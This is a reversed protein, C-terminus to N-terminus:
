PTYSSADWFSGNVMFTCTITFGCDELLSVYNQLDNRWEKLVTNIMLRGRGSTGGNDMWAAANPESYNCVYSPPSPWPNKIKNSVHCYKRKGSNIAPRFRTDALKRGNLDELPGKHDYEFTVTVLGGFRRCSITPNTWPSSLSAPQWYSTSGTGSCDVVADLSNTSGTLQRADDGMGIVYWTYPSSSNDFVFMYVADAKLIGAPLDTSGNISINATTSANVNLTNVGAANASGMKLFIRSKNAIAWGPVSSAGTTYARTSSNYSAATTIMAGRILNLNRASVMQPVTTTGTGAQTMNMSTYNDGLVLYRATGADFVFMYVGGLKLAGAELTDSNNIRITTATTGNVSLTANGTNAAHMRAIVRAGNGLVFGPAVVTYASASTATVSVKGRLVAADQATLLKGITGETGTNIDAQLLLSYSGGCAAAAPALEGTETDVMLCRNGPPTPTNSNWRAVSDASFNADEIETCGAVGNSCPSTTKVKVVNGGVGSISVGGGSGSGCATGLSIITGSSDIQLCGATPTGTPASPGTGILNTGFKVNSSRVRETRYGLMPIAGLKNSISSGWNTDPNIRLVVDEAAFGTDVITAPPPPWLMSVQSIMAVNGNFGSIDLSGTGCPAGTQELKGNVSIQICSGGGLGIIIGPLEGIGIEGIGGLGPGGIDISGSDPEWQAIYDVQISGDTTAKPAGPTSPDALLLFNGTFNSGKGIAYSKAALEGFSPCPALMLGATVAFSAILFNYNARKVKDSQRETM